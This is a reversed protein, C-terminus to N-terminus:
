RNVKRQRVVHRRWLVPASLLGLAVLGLGVPIDLM